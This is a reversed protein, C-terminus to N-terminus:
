HIGWKQERANERVGKGQAKLIAIKERGDSNLYKYTTDM